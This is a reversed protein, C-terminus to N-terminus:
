TWGDFDDSDHKIPPPIIVLASTGSTGITTGSPVPLPVPLPTVLSSTGITGSTVGPVVPLQALPTEPLSIRRRKATNKSTSTSTSTPSPTASPNPRKYKSLIPLVKDITGCLDPVSISGVINIKGNTFINLTGKPEKMQWTLAPKIEPEYDVQHWRSEGNIVATLDITSSTDNPEFSGCVNTISYMAIRVNNFGCNFIRRALRRVAIKNLEASKTGLIVMKGSFFLSAFARPKRSSLLLKHHRKEVNRVTQAIHTFDAEDFQRGLDAVSCINHLKIVGEGNPMAM